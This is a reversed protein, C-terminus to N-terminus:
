SHLHFPLTGQLLSFFTLSSVEDWVTTMVHSRVMVPAAILLHTLDHIWHNEDICSMAWRSEWHFCLICGWAFQGSNRLALMNEGCASGFNFSWIRSTLIITWISTCCVPSPFIIPFFGTLLFWWNWLDGLLLFRCPCPASCSSWFRLLVWRVNGWCLSYGPLPFRPWEHLSYSVFRWLLEWLPRILGICPAWSWSIPIDWVSVKVIHCSLWWLSGHASAITRRALIMDKFLSSCSVLEPIDLRSSSHYPFVGATFIMVWLWEVFVHHNSSWISDVRPYLM